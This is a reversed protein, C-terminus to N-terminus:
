SRVLFAPGQHHSSVFVVCLGLQPATRPRRTNSVFRPWLAAVRRRAWPPSGEVWRQVTFVGSSLLVLGFPPSSLQRRPRHAAPATRQTAAGLVVSPRPLPRFRLGWAICDVISGVRVVAM